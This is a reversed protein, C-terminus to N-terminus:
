GNNRALLAGILAAVHESRELFAVPGAEKESVPGTRGEDLHHLWGFDVRVAKRRQRAAHERKTLRYPRNVPTVSRKVVV